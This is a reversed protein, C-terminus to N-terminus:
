FQFLAYRKSVISKNIVLKKKDECKLSVYVEYM